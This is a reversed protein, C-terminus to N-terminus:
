GFFLQQRCIVATAIQLLSSILWKIHMSFQFMYKILSSAFFSGKENLLLKALKYSVLVVVAPCVIASLIHNAFPKEKKQM